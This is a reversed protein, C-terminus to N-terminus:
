NHQQRLADLDVYDYENEDQNNDDLTSYYHDDQDSEGRSASPNAPTRHGKNVDETNPRRSSDGSITCSDPNKHKNFSAVPHVPHKAVPVSLESPIRSGRSSCRQRLKLRMVKTRLFCCYAVQSIIITWLLVIMLVLWEWCSGLSADPRHSTAHRSGNRWNLQDDRPDCGVSWAVDHADVLRLRADYLAKTSIKMYSGVRVIYIDFTTKNDRRVVPTELHLKEWTSSDINSANFTIDELVQTGGIFCFLCPILKLHVRAEGSTTMLFMGSDTAKMLNDNWIRAPTSDLFVPCAHQCNIVMNVSARTPTVVIYAGPDIVQAGPCVVYSGNIVLKGNQISLGIHQWQFKSKRFKRIRISEEHNHTDRWSCILPSNIGTVRTSLIVDGNNKYVTINIGALIQSTKFQSLLGLVVESERFYSKPSSHNKKVEYVRCDKANSDDRLDVAQAQTMVVLLVILGAQLRCLWGDGRVPRRDGRVPRGDGRVPQGNGRVPRWDGRVLLGEGRVYRRYSHVHQGDGRVPLENARM